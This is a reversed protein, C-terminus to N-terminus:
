KIVSISSNFVPQTNSTISIHYIGSKLHALNLIEIQDISGIESIYVQKGLIDYVAV